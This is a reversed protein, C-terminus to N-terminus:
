ELLTDVIVRNRGSGKAIYLAKDANEMFQEPTYGDDPTDATIGISITIGITLKDYTIDMEEVEARIRNAVIAADEATTYPLIIAFEEGGYRAVVDTERQVQEELLRSLRRLCEDGVLHGYQDNIKKFHDIDIFMLALTTHNRHAMKLEKRLSQDFFVRNKLGTLGDLVSLRKLDAAHKKIVFSQKLSKWYEKHQAGIIAYMGVWYIFFVLILSINSGPTFLMALEGPLLYATLLGVTLFKSPAAVGSSGGTLGALSTLVVLTLPQYTPVVLTIACFVGWTLAPLLVIPYFVFPWLSKNIFYIKKFYLIFILRLASFIVLLVTIFFITRPAIIYYKQPIIVAFWLILYVYIGTRARKTIDYNACFLIDRDKIKPSSSARYVTKYQKALKDQQQRKSM